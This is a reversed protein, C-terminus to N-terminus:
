VVDEFLSVPIGLLENDIGMLSIEYKCIRDGNKSEFVFNLVNPEDDATLTIVDDSGACKLVKSM